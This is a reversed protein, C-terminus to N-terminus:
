PPISALLGKAREVLPVIGKAQYRRLSIEAERRAEDDRGTRALIQALTFRPDSFEPVPPESGLAALASRALREAEDMNGRKAEIVAQVGLADPDGAPNSSELWRQAEDGRGQAALAAALLHAQASQYTRDGMERLVEHAARAEREAAEYDEALMEVLVAVDSSHARLHRLGLDDMVARASAIRERALAFRGALGELGGIRILCNAHVHRNTTEEMLGRCRELASEVPEPGWLADSAIYRVNTAQRREDGAARALELARTHFEAAADYDGAWAALKGLLELADGASRHDGAAELPGVLPELERQVAAHTDPTGRQIRVFSLRVTARSDLAGAGVRRAREGVDQLLMEADALRGSEYLADGLSVELGMRSLDDPQLLATARELLKTAGAMDGRQLARTGAVGLRRAARSALAEDATGLETRYRHAQELHFGLIEEYQETDAGLKAELWTAYQEHLEARLRKPISEYASDRILVHGFRFGDDGLFIAQDPRIFEKRVLTILHSGVDVREGSPLLATVAGRHFQRGEVAAREIVARQGPDLRDLRASLLANISPPIGLEGDLGDARMALFQEVFLPNGEAAEVIRARMPTDVEQLLDVLTEADAAGLPELNVLVANPRPNSWTPRSEFLDPRATCVVLLPAGAAFTAVYELLDLLTPEAWHIDDVVAILPRDVALAEFLKRTAWSIEEPSGGDPGLSLAGVLRDAVLRGEDGGVIQALADLPHDGGIQRIIEGLPWYTIGEGYPLCRGVVITTAKEAGSLLERVLRSKGIGPPGVVTCLQPVREDVARALATHLAGLEAVRGVFPSTIPATSVPAESLVELVRFAAVPQSKGKLELPAAAETVVMGRVLVETAASILIEGPGAAQELRAAVNVADGTVLTEGTGAAVEGTGIGIRVSLDLAAVAQLMEVAARVAREADDEHVNPIGFVAMAADGVFKEVTGGHRELITRLAAHYSSMLERLVEPDTREGLATSGVLDCFVTTVTKRVERARGSSGELTAGCSNCFRASEPNGQGCQDCMIMVRTHGIARIVDPM